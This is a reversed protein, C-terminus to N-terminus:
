NISRGVSANQMFNLMTYIKSRKQTRKITCPYPYIVKAAAVYCITSVCHMYLAYMTCVNVYHMCLAYVTCVYLMCKCLAYVTCVCHM